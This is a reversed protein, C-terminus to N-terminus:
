REGSAETNSVIKYWEGAAAAEMRQKPDLPNNHINVSGLGNGIPIQTTITFNNRNQGFPHIHTDGGGSLPISSFPIPDFPNLPSNM